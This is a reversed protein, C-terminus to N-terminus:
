KQTTKNAYVSSRKLGTIVSDIFKQNYKGTLALDKKIESLPRPQFEDFELSHEFHRRLLRRIFESRTAYGAHKVEADIRRATNDPLSITLTAM